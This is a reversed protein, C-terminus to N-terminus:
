VNRSRRPSPSVSRAGARAWSRRGTRFATLGGADLVLARRREMPRVMDVIDYWVEDPGCEDGLEMIETLGVFEFRLPHGHTTRGHFQAKKGASMASAIAAAPSIALVNVLRRECTRRAGSDGEVDVRWQFLLM